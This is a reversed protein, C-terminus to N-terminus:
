GDLLAATAQPWRQGPEGVLLLPGPDLGVGAAAGVGLEPLGVVGGWAGAASAGAAIALSLLGHSPVAVVSGRQLGGGRFLDRLPPPAPSVRAGPAGASASAVQSRGPYM